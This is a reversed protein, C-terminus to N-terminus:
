AISPAPRGADDLVEALPVVRGEGAARRAAEALALAMLGDRGTTPVPAGNAVADAFAAIEAAYAAAYRTMFFDLLPPRSYGDRTAVEINAQRHNGASVAGLSGHVEIRQDYGYAARRANTITCQRGSGTVLLVTASDFDGLDRIAPDTLVSGVAQVSEVEEGLLWRAVDFDHITMDRFIGGSRAIYEHPPPGPDRSTLTVMEVAGIRGTDIVDKLARFDPDFRRQFGIMLTTGTAEVVELCARVRAMSLDVPKECFCAKGARAFREILDAHTDTPTCVLVADVDDSAEIADITRVEAGHLSAVEAAAGAVPDAVAVLAAGRTAGVARAHVRGIRGAGLLAIRTM